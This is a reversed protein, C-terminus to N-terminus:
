EDGGWKRRTLKLDLILTGYDRCVVQGNLIGFNALKHDTLFAPLTEPIEEKRMDAAKTMILFTGNYSISHCPALWKAIKKCHCFQQWIQWELVNQFHRTDNEMKIIKTKDSPHDYVDRSMGDGIKDGTMFSVYERMVRISIGDLDVDDMM